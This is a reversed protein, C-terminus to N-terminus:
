ELGGSQGFGVNRLGDLFGVGNAFPTDGEVMEVAVFDLRGGATYVFDRLMAHMRGGLGGRVLRQSYAEAGEWNKVEM